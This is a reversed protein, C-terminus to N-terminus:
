IIRYQFGSGVKKSEIYGAHELEKIHDRVTQRSVKLTAAIASQTIAVYDGKHESSLVLMCLILRATVSLDNDGLVANKLKAKDTNNFDTM